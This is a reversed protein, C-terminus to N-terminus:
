TELVRSLHPPLLVRIIDDMNVEKGGIIGAQHENM